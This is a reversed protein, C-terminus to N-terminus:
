LAAACVRNGAEITITTAGTSWILGNMQHARHYGCFEQLMLPAGAVVQDRRRGHEAKGTQVGAVPPAHNSLTPKLGM